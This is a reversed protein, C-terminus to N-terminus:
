KATTLHELGYENDVGRDNDNFPDRMSVVKERWLQTYLNKIKQLEAHLAVAKTALAMFTAHQAELTTVIAALSPEHCSGVPLLLLVYGTTYTADSNGFCAQARHDLGNKM